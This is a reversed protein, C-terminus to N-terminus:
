QLQAHEEEAIADTAARMRYGRFGKTGNYTMSKCLAKTLYKLLDPKSLLKVPICDDRVWARLETHADDLSLFGDDRKEVKLGIFLSMHDNQSQYEKTCALVEPPETLGEKQYLQFYHLLMSMFHDTWQEMKQSLEYDIPFENDGMPTEVFKSTFEVVRIRRWTGGDDSPVYPLHNCLLLMKFQPNFEFPEKYLARAMIKYGGSLEKMLGINIKEDESPEQLCAFRKGKSRALESNAANSAVRKQTLLTIPFKCCYDGFSKEFLEVLKSKSNSGSGTWIYFKQEKVHGHIFTSFLKLVYNRVRENTLVQKLYINIQTVTPHDPDYDVYCVGTSFTIYDEPRGDRFRHEELDYVGNEFGILNPNADLKEEFKDVFFLEACEKMINEKFTTNRLKMAIENFTKATESYNAQDGGGTAHIAKNNFRIAELHYVRWVEESLRQRLAIGVESVRWRHSKYEYWFRGINSLDLKIVDVYGEPNDQKAWMHLTGIGLGGERMRNWLRTCAGTEYKASRKSFDEWAGDLRDDINRLCWGLRIWDDYADARRVDLLDVLKKVLDINEYRVVRPDAMAAVIKNQLRIRRVAHDKEHESKELDAARDARIKRERFKNRISFLRVRQDLPVMDALLAEGRFIAGDSMRYIATLLYPENNRKQSGYMYWSNREVVAEDVIDSPANLAGMGHEFLSALKPIVAKRVLHKVTARTSFSPMVLHIGDKVQGEVKDPYSTRKEMVYILDDPGDVDFWHRLEEAYVDCITKVDGDSYVHSRDGEGRLCKIDMDVVVPGCHRNKETVYVAQGAAFAREYLGFYTEVSEYPVYMSFPMHGLHTHTYEHGKDVRHVCMFDLLEKWEVSTVPQPAPM